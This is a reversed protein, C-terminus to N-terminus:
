HYRSPPRLQTYYDNDYIARKTILVCFTHKTQNNQTYALHHMNFWLNMLIILVIVFIFSTM